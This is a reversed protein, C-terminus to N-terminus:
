DRHPAKHLRWAISFLFYRPITNYWTETRGQANLTRQINSRQALLDFATFKLTLSKNRLLRKEVSMNWVWEDTNMTEDEYGNRTYFTLDSNVDIDLPLKAQATLSYLVNLSNIKQFDTRKSTAHQWDLTTRFGANLPKSRYRLSLTAESLYNHVISRNIADSQNTWEFDVSHNYHVRGDVSVNWHNTKNLNRAFSGRLEAQWNGNINM